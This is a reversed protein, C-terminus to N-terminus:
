ACLIGGALSLGIQAIQPGVCEPPERNGPVDVCGKVLVIHLGAVVLQVHVRLM